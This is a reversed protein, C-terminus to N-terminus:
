GTEGRGSARKMRRRKRRCSDIAEPTLIEAPLEFEREEMEPIPQGFALRTRGKRNPGSLALERLHPKSYFSTFPKTPEPPLLQAPAPPPHMASTPKHKTSSSPKSLKKGTSTSTTTPNTTTTPTTTTASRAEQHLQRAAWADVDNPDPPDGGCSQADSLPTTGDDAEDNTSPTATEPSHDKKSSSATPPIPEEEAPKDKESKRRKEEERWIKFKQLVASIERIFYTRKSEFHKREPDSILGTIGMVRLWDHGQLEDLLRDLNQKEHQARDREINRLQKEQRENRRHPRFYTEESLPDPSTTTSDEATPPKPRSTSSPPNPLNITECNHLNVLPNGFPTDTDSNPDSSPTLPEPLDDLLKITTNGALFETKPPEMSLLEEYNPFYLALESRARSGGDHSRLSRRQERGTSPQETPATPQQPTADPVPQSPKSVTSTSAPQQIPTAVAVDPEPDAAAASRRPRRASSAAATTTVASPRGPPSVRRSVSSNATASPSITDLPDPSERGVPFFYSTITPTSDNRLIRRANPRPTAPSSSTPNNSALPRRTSTRRRLPHHSSLKYPTAASSSSNETTTTDLLDPSSKRRRSSSHTQLRARKAPPESDPQDPSHGHHPDRRLSVRVPMLTTSTM